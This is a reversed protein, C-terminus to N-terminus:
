AGKGFPLRENGRFARGEKRMRDMKEDLKLRQEDTLLSRIEQRQKAMVKAMATKVEAMKDINKYIAKLDADDATALTQQHAKLERLQNKLPKVEKAAELRIKKMSDKQEETLALDRGFGGGPEHNRMMPRGDMKKDNGQLPRQAFVTASTFLVAIAVVGLIRTKM